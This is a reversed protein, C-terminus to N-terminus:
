NPELELFSNAISVLEESVTGGIDVTAGEDFGEKGPALAEDDPALGEHSYPTIDGDDSQFLAGDPVETISDPVEKSYQRDNLLDRYWKRRHFYRRILALPMEPHGIRVAITNWEEGILPEMMERTVNHLKVSCEEYSFKQSKFGIARPCEQRRPVHWGKLMFFQRVLMSNREPEGFLEARKKWSINAVRDFEERSITDLRARNCKFGNKPM